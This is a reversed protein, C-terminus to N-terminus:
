FTIHHKPPLCGLLSGIEWGKPHPISCGRHVVGEFVQNDANSITLEHCLVLLPFNGIGNMRSQSVTAHGPNLHQVIHNMARGDIDRLREGVECAIHDFVPEQAKVLHGLQRRPDFHQFLLVLFRTIPSVPFVNGLM